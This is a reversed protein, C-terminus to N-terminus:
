VPSGPVSEFHTPFLVLPKDWYATLFRNMPVALRVPYNRQWEDETVKLKDRPFVKGPVMPKPYDQIFSNLGSQRNPQKQKSIRTFYARYFFLLQGHSSKRGISGDICFSM